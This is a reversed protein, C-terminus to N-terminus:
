SKLIANLLRKAAAEWTMEKTRELGKIRLSELTAPSGLTTELLNALAVPDTPDFYLAANGCIEPPSSTNTSIVPCGLAMAEVPPLGFGEYLSPFVFCAARQYLAKLEEDSVYGVHKVWTPLDQGIEGFVKPNTGGAIVVDFIPDKLLSVAKVLTGFNKHPAMSGVALVFPRDSLSHKEIIEFDSIVSNFHDSGESVVNIARETKYTNKIEKRSFESVTSILKSNRLLLPIMVSYWLRFGKSFAQPIKKSTADHIVVAQNKKFLPAANCLNILFGTGTALPLRVQEWFINNSGAVKQIEIYEWAVEPHDSNTLLIFNAAERLSQDKAILNNIANIIEIAFRDVGTLTRGLFKGNLFITKM